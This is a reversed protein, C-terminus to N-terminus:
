ISGAFMTQLADYYNPQNLATKMLQGFPESSLVAAKMVKPLGGECEEMSNYYCYTQGPRACPADPNPRGTKPNTGGCVNGTCQVCQDNGFPLIGYKAPAGGNPGATLRPTLGYQVATTPVQVNVQAGQQWFGETTLYNQARSSDM